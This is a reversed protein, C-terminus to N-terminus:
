RLEFSPFAECEPCRAPSARLDYGCAPCQGPTRRNKLRHRLILFATSLACVAAPLALRVHFRWITEGTSITRENEWGIGVARLLRPGDGPPMGLGGPKWREWRWHVHFFNEPPDGGDVFSAVGSDFRLIRNHAGSEFGPTYNSRFIGDSVYHSRVWIVLTAVLLTLAVALSLRGLHRIPLM